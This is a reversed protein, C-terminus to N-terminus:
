AITASLVPGSIAATEGADLVFIKGDRIRGTHATQCITEVVADVQALPVLIELKIKPLFSVVYESGCYMENQGRQRGFGQVATATGGEIGIKALADCIEDYKFPKIIAVVLRM